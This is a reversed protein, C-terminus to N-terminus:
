IARHGAYYAGLHGFFVVPIQCGLVIRHSQQYIHTIVYPQMILFTVLSLIALIIYIRATNHTQRNIFFAAIQGFVVSPILAGLIIRLSHLSTNCIMYSQIIVFCFLALGTFLLLLTSMAM